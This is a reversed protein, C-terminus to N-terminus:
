ASEKMEMLDDLALTQQGLKIHEALADLNRGPEIKSENFDKDNLLTLDKLGAQCLLEFLEPHQEKDLNM